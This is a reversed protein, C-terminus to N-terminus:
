LGSLAETYALLHASRSHPMVTDASCENAYAVRLKRDTPGLDQQLVGNM